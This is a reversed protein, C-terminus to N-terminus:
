RAIMFKSYSTQDNEEVFLFYTGNNLDAVSLSPQSLIGQRIRKGSLDTIFYNQGKVLTHDIFIEGSAPNPYVSHVAQQYNKVGVATCEEESTQWIYAAFQPFDVFPNRNGQRAFVRNNRDKEKQSPPDQEHWQLLMDLYEKKYGSLKDTGKVRNFETSSWTSFKDAYRVSMYLLIRAIDGKYEDIPEFVIGSVGTVASSGRKSGNRSTYNATAVKGIPNSSRQNNVYGDAPLLNHFDGYMPNEAAFWSSPFIHERNWCIGESGGGTENNCKNGPKYTYPQAGNPNHSYVDWIFNEGNINIIDYDAMFNFAQEYTLSAAGTNILTYLADKLNQCRRNSDLSNYYNGQALLVSSSFLIYLTFISRKM